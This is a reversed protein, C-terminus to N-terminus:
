SGSQRAARASRVASLTDALSPLDVEITSDRLQSLASIASGVSRQERDYYRGIWDIAQNLDARFVKQNRALLAIRASLLRLRINERVFYREEPALLMVEPADIRSVRFLQSLEALFSNWGQQGASAIRSFSFGALADRDRQAEREVARAGGLESRLPLQALNAAVSDLRLSLGISDVLPVARLREIDAAILRRLGLAQPQDIRKLRADADQLAALAGSVNGSVSLQQAGFAITNEAEALAAGLSDQAITRYMQELQSQQGIAEALKAELVASRGQLDRLAEQSQRVQGQLASARTDADRLRSALERAQAEGRQWQYALAGCALLAAVLAAIALLPAGPKAPPLRDVAGDGNGSGEKAASASALASEDVPGAASSDPQDVPSQGSPTPESAAEKNDTM